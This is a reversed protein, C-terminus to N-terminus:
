IRYDEPGGDPLAYDGPLIEVDGDKGPCRRFKLKGLGGLRSNTNFIECGKEENEKESTKKGDNEDRFLEDIEWRVRKAEDKAYEIGWVCGLGFCAIGVAVFGIWIM